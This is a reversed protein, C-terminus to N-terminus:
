ASITFMGDDTWISSHAVLRGVVGNSCHISRARGATRPFAASINRWRTTVSRGSKTWQVGRKERSGKRTWRSQTAVVLLRLDDHRGVSRGDRWRAAQQTMCTPRKRVMSTRNFQVYEVIVSIQRRQMHGSGFLRSEFVLDTCLLVM